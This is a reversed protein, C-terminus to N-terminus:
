TCCAINQFVSCFMLLSPDVFLMLGWQRVVESSVLLSRLFQPPCRGFAEQVSAPTLCQGGGWSAQVPASECYVFKGEM